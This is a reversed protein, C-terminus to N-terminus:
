DRELELHVSLAASVQKAMQESCAGILRRSQMDLPGARTDCVYGGAEALILVAACMDWIHVGFEYYADAHGSAVSCLNLAASGMSRIGHCQWGISELNRFVAEKKSEDRQSGFETMVLGEHLSSCERVRVNVSQNNGQYLKAGGGKIATYLRDLSPNYVVALTPEKNVTFGISVCSFPFTHVFNTTGDIPDIIWTPENTWEAKSASEEGIFRDTPFQKKLQEFLMSEVAKDYETVLDAFSEKQDVTKMKGSAELIIAGAKRALQVALTQRIQVEQPEM